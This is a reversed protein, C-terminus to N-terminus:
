IEVCLQDSVAMVNMSHESKRSLADAVVNAKGEHYQIDLEYDSLFELWRRQRGNLYWKSLKAYLQHERLCSLVQRLHEEHEEKDVSPANILGFPMATFEYHGYRIMFVSKPIDQEAIEVLSLRVEFRDEFVSWSGDKKKVFLVPAGWPSSSPRIYGKELLDELQTKLEKMEASSMRYPAKSIPGTVPVLNITFEVDRVPPMGLIEDPFVDPFEEIVPISGKSKEEESGVEQVSCMFLPYGKKVFKQLQMASILRLWSNKGEKKYTVRTKSPSNLTVKEGAYDIKAEYKGLWDMGLIVDLDKLYFEIFDSLFVVGYISLPLSRFLKSCNRVKGPPISVDLSVSEPSGLRLSGVVRKSIFSHSARILCFEDLTEFTVGGLKGQLTLTLGQEFRQAKITETPVVEPAFRMLEIFKNYYENIFMNGMRLNTFEMSKQKRLYSPYFKERLAEKFEDWGFNPKKLLEDKRQVWWLDAEKRLYYYGNNVRLESPYNIADFLKDFERIWSELSAPDEKGLYVLPKATTVRKFVESYSDLDSNRNGQNVVKMINETIHTLNRLVKRVKSGAHRSGMQNRMRASM